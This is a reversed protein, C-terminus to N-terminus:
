DPDPPLTIGRPAYPNIRPTNLLGPSAPWWVDADPSFQGGYSKFLPVGSSFAARVAEIKDSPLIPMSAISLSEAARSVDGGSYRFARDADVVHADSSPGTLLILDGAPSASSPTYEATWVTDLVNKRPHATVGVSASIFSPPSVVTHSHGMDEDTAPGPKEICQFNPPIKVTLLQIATAAPATPGRWIVMSLATDDLSWVLNSVTLRKGDSMQRDFKCGDIILRANGGDDEHWYQNINMYHDTGTMAAWHQGHPSPTFSGDVARHFYRMTDNDALAIKGASAAIGMQSQTPLDFVAGSELDPNERTIVGIRTNGMWEISKLGNDFSQVGAARLADDIPDIRAAAMKKGTIADVVIVEGGADTPPVSVEYAIMNGDPSFVPLDKYTTDGLPLFHTEDDATLIELRFTADKSDPDGQQFVYVAKAGAPIQPSPTQALAPM